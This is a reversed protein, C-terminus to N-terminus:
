ESDFLRKQLVLRNQTELGLPNYRVLSLSSLYLRVNPIPALPAPTPAPVPIPPTLPADPTPAPQALVPAAVGLCLSLAVLSPMVHPPKM